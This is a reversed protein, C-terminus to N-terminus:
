KNEDIKAYMSFTQETLKETLLVDKLSGAYFIAGSCDGPSRVNM